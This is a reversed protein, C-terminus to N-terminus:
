LLLCKRVTNILEWYYRDLKLGQYLMLLYKQVDWTDLTKRLKIMTILASVPIGIGWILLMTTGLLGCWKIHEASYCKMNIDVRVRFDNDGVEVCQFISLGSRTLAPHLLFLIVIMSVVIYRKIDQFHKKFVLHMMTWIICYLVILILPLLAILFIKFIVGNPAFAKMESHQIFCDVSVFSESSSGIMNAPTLIDNITSPFNANFSLVTSVVQFYNTMIRMLTAMQSDSTKKLNIAILYTLYAFIAIM